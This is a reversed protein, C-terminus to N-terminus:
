ALAGLPEARGARLDIRLNQTVSWSGTTSQAVNELVCLLGPDM